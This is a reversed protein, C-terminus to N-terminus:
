LAPPAPIRELASAVAGFREHQTAWQTRAQAIEEKTRAVFNWWMVIPEPFPEGGLLLLRSPELAALALSDRGIGLYGLQGPAVVQEGIAVQGDLVVVAHEYAPELPWETAGPRVVLDAGVLPTDTRAASAAGAFTGALVTAEAAGLAVRPLESHHEFAPAADRSTSPQAVWLQVGHLTGRYTRVAEEAHVVGHGATMLNLQGPRIEQETGLSDRHLVAGDLLWTVTHLGIHPHPGIDLGHAETVQEPGLHDAFCWAGVTRRQRRPLARRVRVHGVQADRDDSVEVVPPEVTVVRQEGAEETAVPGSM